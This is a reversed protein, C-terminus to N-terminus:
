VFRRVVQLLGDESQPPIVEDAIALLDPHADATAIGYGVSEFLSIDNIGDGVAIMHFPNIAKSALLARTARGKEAERSGINVDVLIKGNVESRTLYTSVSETSLLEDNFAQATTEDLDIFFAGPASRAWQQEATYFSGMPDGAICCHASDNYKKCLAIITAVQGITLNSEFLIRGTKSDIVQAGNAVVSEHHLALSSTIPLAYEATRGTAAIAPINKDLEHFARLLAPSTVSLSREPVATNDIDFVFGKFRRM